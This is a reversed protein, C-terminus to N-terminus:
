EVQAILRVKKNGFNLWLELQFFINEKIENIEVRIKDQQQRADQLRGGKAVIQRQVAQWFREDIFRSDLKDLCQRLKDIPDSSEMRVGM